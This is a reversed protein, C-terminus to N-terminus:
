RNAEGPKRQQLLYALLDNLEQPSLQDVVNAPM